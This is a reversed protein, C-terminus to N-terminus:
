VVAGLPTCRQEVLASSLGRAHKLWAVVTPNGQICDLCKLLLGAVSCEPNHPLRLALAAKVAVEDATGTIALENRLVSAMPEEFLEDVDLIPTPDFRPMPDAAPLADPVTAPALAPAGTVHTADGLVAAVAAEVAANPQSM